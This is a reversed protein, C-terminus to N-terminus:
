WNRYPVKSSSVEVKTGARWRAMLSKISAESLSPHPTPGVVVEALYEDKNEGLDFEYYPVIISGGSRFSMQRFDVGKPSLLRWEREERFTENKLMPALRALNSHFGGDTPLVVFTRTREPDFYGEDTNFDIELTEDILRSVLEKQRDKDYVCRAMTFGQERGKAALHETRFGLSVGSSGAYARWQSLLDGDESFSCVCVNMNSIGHLNRLMGGIKRREEENHTGELRTQLLLEAIGIAFLYESSDNLYQVKSAWITDSNIIGLAGELNTYHFLTSPPSGAALEEFVRM